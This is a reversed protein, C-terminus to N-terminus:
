DRAMSRIVDVIRLPDSAKGILADVKLENARAITEPENHHVTYVVVRMGPWRGALEVFEWGNRDPLQLDVLAVDPARQECMAIADDVNSAREVDFGADSVISDTIFALDDDDEILLIHGSM